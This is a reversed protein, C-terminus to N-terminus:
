GSYGIGILWDDDIIGSVSNIIIIGALLDAIGFDRPDFVLALFYVIVVRPLYFVAVPIYIIRRRSINYVAVLIYVVRFCHINCVAILSYIVRLSFTDYVAVLTYVIRFNLTNFIAILLDFIIRRADRIRFRRSYRIGISGDRIGVVENNVTIMVDIIRIM